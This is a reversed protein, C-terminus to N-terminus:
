RAGRSQPLGDWLEEEADEATDFAARGGHRGGGEDGDPDPPVDRDGGGGAARPRGDNHDRRSGSMSSRRESGEAIGDLPGRREYGEEPRLRDGVQSGSAIRGSAVSGGGSGSGGSPKGSGGKMRGDCAPSESVDKRSLLNTIPSHTHVYM